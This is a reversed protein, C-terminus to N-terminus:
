VKPEPFHIQQAPDIQHRIQEYARRQAAPIDIQSLDPLTSDVEQLFALAAEMNDMFRIRVGFIQLTTSVFFKLLRDDLGIVVVWGIKPHRGSKLKSLDQIRPMTEVESYDHIGHLLSGSVQDITALVREDFDPLEDARLAHWGKALILKGEVLWALGVPM